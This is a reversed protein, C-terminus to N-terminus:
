ATPANKQCLQAWSSGQKEPHEDKMDTMISTTQQISLCDHTPRTPTPILILIIYFM